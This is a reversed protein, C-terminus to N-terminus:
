RKGPAPAVVGPTAQRSPTGLVEDLGKRYSKIDFHVVWRNKERGNVFLIVTPYWRIDYKSKIEWNTIGGLWDKLCYKAFVARGTYDGSLKDLEPELLSCWPCGTKYFQVLVPKQSDLVQRQFDASSNLAMLNGGGGCGGALLALVAFGFGAVPALRGRGARGALRGHKTLVASATVSPRCTM